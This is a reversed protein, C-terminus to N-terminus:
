MSPADGDIRLIYWGEINAKIIRKLGENDGNELESFRPCGHYDKPCDQSCADKANANLYPCIRMEFGNREVHAGGDAFEEKVRYAMEM